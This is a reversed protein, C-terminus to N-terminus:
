ISKDSYDLHLTEFNRCLLLPKLSSKGLVQNCLVCLPQLKSEQRTFYFGIKGITLSIKEIREEKRVRSESFHLSFIVFHRGHFSRRLTPLDGCLHYPMTLFHARSFQYWLAWYRVIHWSSLPRYGFFIFRCFFFSSLLM